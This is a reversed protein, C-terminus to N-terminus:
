VKRLDKKYVWSLIEKLLVRDTKEQQVTYTKGKVWSPIKQGTAYKKADSEIKVKDGVDIDENVDDDGGSAVFHGDATTIFADTYGLGILRDLQKQANNKVGFAGAQVRYLKGDFAVIADVNQKDLKNVLAQANAKESFAGTQVRYLVKGDAKPTPDAKVKTGGYTVGLYKCIARADADAMDEIYQAQRNGFIYEFDKSNTMFGHEILIAVVKTLRTIALNTWSGIKSAHLGNGHTSYGKAKIEDRTLTALRKGGDSTHWYFVCRGEVSAVGANAHLSVVIDPKVRNYYNIRKTLSVDPKNPEQGFIVKIGSAELKKRLAVGLKANFSHEAYGRGNRYVGKGRSPFTDSGHGIDIAVVKGTNAVKNEVRETKTSETAGAEEDWNTLRYQQILDILKTAYNPDTAYGAERLAHAAKKYDTEGIVKAYNKKRWDTSTFFEGHDIVSEAKTPYHRFHTRVTTNKGDIVEWTDIFYAYGNYDGKIGFLNNAKKALESEGWASELIAQAGTISPLIRHQKWGDIAGQKVSRLFEQRTM